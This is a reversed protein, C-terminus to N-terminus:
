WWAEFGLDRRLLDTLVAASLTAPRQQDLAPLQLHATMVSAVGAAIAQRFPPLEVAELRERSHPILPLELHSDTSTDGHGPFHKACALM